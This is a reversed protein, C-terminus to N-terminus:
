NETCQKVLWTEKCHRESSVMVADRTNYLITADSISLFASIILNVTLKSLADAEKQVALLVLYLLGLRRTKPFYVSFSFIDVNM